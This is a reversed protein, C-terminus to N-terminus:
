GALRVTTTSGWLALSLFFDAVIIMVISLRVARGVAVGVGAPGGSATFGYYCCVMTLIVAFVLVKGFSYAVDIPPLFLSFYHEYTGGTLGYYHVSVAQTSAYTGVLAILYLPVVAIFAAIMRTTVLYPVSRVSMVELADIEESIRMAGIQATFGAGVTAVLANGAILPAVERTNFYASLFGVYPQIGVQQLGEYGVLGVVSGVAVVEFVLIGVTGAVLVLAGRGFSVETLLRWIEGRHHRVAHPVGRLVRGYFAVQRGLDALVDYGPFPRTEPAPASM